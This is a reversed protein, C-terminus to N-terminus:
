ALEIWNPFARSIGYGALALVATFAFFGFAPSNRVYREVTFRSKELREITLYIRNLDERSRADFYEGGTRRVANAIEAGIAKESLGVGVMYLHIGEKGIADILPLPNRGYNHEADTFLIIVKGKRGALSDTKKRTLLDYALNLGEGVATLGEGILTNIDVMTLYHALSEHDVTPPSVVYANISYVELGIADTPRRAIFDQAAAKVADLKSVKNAVDDGLLLPRRFDEQYGLFQNMSSSIDLVLLIQLGGRTIRQLTFPYVPQLCAVLLSLVGVGLLCQPLRTQLGAKPLRTKLYFVLPHALFPRQWWRFLAAGLLLPLLFYLYTLNQFEM